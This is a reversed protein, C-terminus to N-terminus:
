GEEAYHLSWWLNIEVEILLLSLPNIHLEPNQTNHLKMEDHVATVMKLTFSTSHPHPKVYPDQLPTHM